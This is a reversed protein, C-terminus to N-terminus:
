EDVRKQGVTVPVPQPMAVYPYAKKQRTAAWQLLDGSDSSSKYFCLGCGGNGFEVM